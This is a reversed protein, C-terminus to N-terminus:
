KAVATKAAGKLELLEPMRFMEGMVGRRIGESMDNLGQLVQVDQGVLTRLPRQGAPTEILRLIANPVEQPNQAAPGDMNAAFADFLKRPLTAAPGYEAIRTEDKPHLNKDFIATRYEGPELIVSDIGLPALEFRYADALAELAFKSACYPAMFAISVRGAGSSVHILLGSGKQRMLPLVARNVRVVGFFNTEFLAKFEETTYAETLGWNAFGANNVVVDIQGAQEAVLRVCRAVSRDDTVDMEVVHLDLKEQNALALLEDRNGANRAAIDRMSAFVRYGNRALTEATSRGFGSSAGTILVVPMRAM